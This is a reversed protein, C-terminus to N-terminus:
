KSHYFRLACGTCFRHSSRRGFTRMCAPCGSTWFPTWYHPRGCYAVEIYEGFLAEIDNSSHLVRLIMVDDGDVRCAIVYDAVALYPYSASTRTRRRGAYPDRTRLAFRATISGVVGDAVDISSGQTTLSFWM